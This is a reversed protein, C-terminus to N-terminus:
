DKGLLMNLSTWINLLLLLLFSFNCLKKRTKFNQLHWIPFAIKAYTSLSSLFINKKLIWYLQSSPQITSFSHCRKVFHERCLFFKLTIEYPLKSFSQFDEISKVECCLTKDLSKSRVELLLYISCKQLFYRTVVSDPSNLHQGSQTPLALLLSACLLFFDTYFVLAYKKKASMQWLLIVIPVGM